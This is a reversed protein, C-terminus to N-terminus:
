SRASCLHQRVDCLERMGKGDDDPRRFPVRPHRERHPSPLAAAASRTRERLSGLVAWFFSGRNGRRSGTALVHLSLPHGLTLPQHGGMATLIRQSRSM